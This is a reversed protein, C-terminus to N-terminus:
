EDPTKNLTIIVLEPRNFLRLPFQSNGLGRSVVLKTNKVTYIGASYKPFLGQKPAYIGLKTFPIRWQGGHAHGSLMLSISFKAYQEVFQPQHALLIKYSDDQPLITELRHNKQSAGGLGVICVGHTYVASDDLVVAGARQISRRLNRYNKSRLEHNGSIYYTPAIRCLRRVLTLAVAWDRRTYNHIIDGTIVIIQPQQQKVKAVLKESRKGFQKGHLDSIHAIKLDIPASIQLNTVCLANNSWWLFFIFLGLLLAGAVACLVIVPTTM